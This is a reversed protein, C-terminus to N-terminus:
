DKDDLGAEELADALAGMSEHTFDREEHIRAALRAVVAKWALIAAHAPPLPRFPDGVICRILDCLHRRQNPGGAQGVPDLLGDLRAPRAAGAQRVLHERQQVFFRRMAGPKSWVQGCAAGRSRRRATPESPPTAGPTVSWAAGSADVPLGEPPDLLAHGHV